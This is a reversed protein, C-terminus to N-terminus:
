PLDYTFDRWSQKQQQLFFLTSSVNSDTLNSEPWTVSNWNFKFVLLFFLTSLFCRSAREMKSLLACPPNISWWLNLTPLGTYRFYSGVINVRSIRKILRCFLNLKQRPGQLIAFNPSSIQFLVNLYFLVKPENYNLKVEGEHYEYVDLKGIVNM